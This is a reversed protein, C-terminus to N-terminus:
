KVEVSDCGEIATGGTTAGTICAETDSSALGTDKQSYHSVLDILGDLNVDELHSAYVLPDTLDHKPTAGNPGFALTTVDVDTVDFTDSGLIAVPVTGKSKSNITNPDSGPKIDIEVQIVRGCVDIPQNGTVPGLIVGNCDNNITGTTNDLTSGFTFEIRGDNNITGTNLLVSFAADIDLTGSNNIIGFNNLDGDFTIEGSNNVVGTSTNTFEDQINLRAFIGVINLIGENTFSGFVNIGGNSNVTGSAENIMTGSVDLSFNNNITGANTLTATPDIDLGGFIDITGGVNVTVTVGSAITVPVGPDITWKEGANIVDDSTITTPTTFTISAAHAEQPFGVLGLILISAIIPVAWIVRL